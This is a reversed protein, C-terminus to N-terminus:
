LYKPDDDGARKDNVKDATVFSKFLVGVFVGVYGILSGYFVFFLIPLLFFLAQVIKVHLRKIMM